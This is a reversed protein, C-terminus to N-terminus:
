HVSKLAACRNVIALVGEEHEPHIYVLGAEKQEPKKTNQLTQTSAPSLSTTIESAIASPAWCTYKEGLLQQQRYSDPLKVMVRGDTGIPTLQQSPNRRSVTTVLVRLDNKLANHGSGYSVDKVLLTPAPPLRGLSM